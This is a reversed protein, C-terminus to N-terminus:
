VRGGVTRATALKLMGKSQPYQRYARAIQADYSASDFPHEIQAQIAAVLKQSFDPSLSVARLAKIVGTSADVLVIQLLIRDSEGLEPPPTQEAAPVLHYSYAADSWLGATGFRYLLFIVDGQVVLAFEAQHSQIELIETLSPRDYFLVLEFGGQRFNFQPKEPWRRVNPNYLQGVSYTFM